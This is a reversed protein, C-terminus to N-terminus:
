NWCWLKPTIMARNHPVTSKSEFKWPFISNNRTVLGGSNYTKPVTCPAASIATSTRSLYNQHVCTPVSLPSGFGQATSYSPAFPIIDGWFHESYAYWSEAAITQNTIFISHHSYVVLGNYTWIFYKLIYAVTYNSKYINKKRCPCHIM